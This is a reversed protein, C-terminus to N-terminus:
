LDRNKLVWFDDAILKDLGDADLDYSSIHLGDERIIGLLNTGDSKQQIKLETEVKRKGAFGPVSSTRGNINYIDCLSRGLENQYQIVTDRPVQEKTYQVRGATDLKMYKEM